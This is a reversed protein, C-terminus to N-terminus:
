PCGECINYIQFCDEVILAIIVGLDVEVIQQCVNLICSWCYFIPAKKSSLSISQQQNCFTFAKNCGYVKECCIYKYCSCAKIM